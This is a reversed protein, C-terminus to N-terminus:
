PVRRQAVRLRSSRARPNADTEAQAPRVPKRTLVELLNQPDCDCVMQGPPCICRGSLHRFTQKVIRDEISHFAIVALRGLPKLLHAAGELSSPLTELERNTAIRVAQFTRTAPDIRSYGGGRGLAARVIRHLEGTTTIPARERARVIARAVRRARPEEGYERLIRMLEDESIAALLAAADPGEGSFRMDLPADHRFSFGREPTDLQLSSVGLDFLVADVADHGLAKLEHPLMAYPANVLAVRDRWPELRQRALDLASPDVDFGIVRASPEASLIAATHGGLGVTADVVVMGSHLALAALTEEVLM